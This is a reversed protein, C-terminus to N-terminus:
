PIEFVDDDGLVIKDIDHASDAISVKDPEEHNFAKLQRKRLSMDAM